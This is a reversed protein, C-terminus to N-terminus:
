LIKYLSVSQPWIIYQVLRFSIIRATWNTVCITTSVCHCHPLVLPVVIIWNTPSRASCVSNHLNCYLNVTSMAVSCVYQLSICHTFCFIYSFYGLSLAVGGWPGGGGGVLRGRGSWARAGEIGGRRRVETNSGVVIGSLTWLQPSDLLENGTRRGLSVSFKSECIRVV